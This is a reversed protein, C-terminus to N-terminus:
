LFGDMPENDVRDVVEFLIGAVGYPGGEGGDDEMGAYVRWLGQLDGMGQRVVVVVFEGGEAVDHIYAARDVLEQICPGSLEEGGQFLGNGGM